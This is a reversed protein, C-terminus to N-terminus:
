YKLGPDFFGCLVGIFAVLLTLLMVTVPKINRKAMLYWAALIFIVSLLGPMIGNLKEQLILYSEGASNKLNVATTISVWSAAMSGVVIQGLLILSERVIKAKEGVFIGVANEGLTYGKYYLFHQFGLCTINWVLIYFIPGLISGGEALGISIGLLIPIYTGIILSDGIGALPGMLGARIGNIVEDDINEVDNARMEELGATIGLIVIGIQPETNFFPYYTKLKESQEKETPYLDQLIPLMSWMYGFTEMHEHSFATLSGYIWRWYSKRLTKKTVKKKNDAIVQEM